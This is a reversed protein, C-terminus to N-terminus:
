PVPSPNNIDFPITDIHNALLEERKIKKIMNKKGKGEIEYTYATALRDLMKFGEEGQEKELEEDLEQRLLINYGMVKNLYKRITRKLRFETVHLKKSIDDLRPKNEDPDGNPNCMRADYFFLIESRKALMKGDNM